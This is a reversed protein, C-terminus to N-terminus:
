IFESEVLTLGKGFALSFCHCSLSVFMEVLGVFDELSDFVPELFQFLSLTSILVRSEEPIRSLALATNWHDSEQKSGFM